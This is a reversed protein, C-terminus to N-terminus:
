QFRFEITKEASPAVLVQLVLGLQLSQPLLEATRDDLAVMVLRVVLLLRLVALVVLAVMSLLVTSLLLVMTSTALAGRLIHVMGRWSEILRLLGM